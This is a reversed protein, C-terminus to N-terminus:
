DKRIKGGISPRDKAVTRVKSCRYPCRFHGAVVLHGALPKKELLQLLGPSGGNFFEGSGKRLVIRTVQARDPAVQFRQLHAKGQVRVTNVTLDAPLEDFAEATHRCDAVSSIASTKV